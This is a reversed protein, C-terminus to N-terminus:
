PPVLVGQGPQQPPQQGQQRQMMDLMMSYLMHNWADHPDHAAAGGADCQLKRQGDEGFHPHLEMMPAVHLLRMTPMSEHYTARRTSDLRRKHEEARRSLNHDHITTTVYNNAKIIEEPSSDFQMLGRRNRFGGGPGAALNYGAACACCGYGQTPTTRFAVFDNPRQAAQVGAMFANFDNQYNNYGGAGAGAVVFTRGPNSLYDNMWSNCACANPAQQQFYSGDFGQDQM